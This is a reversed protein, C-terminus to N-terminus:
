KKNAHQVRANQINTLENVREEVSGEKLDIAGYLFVNRELMSSVLHPVVRINERKADIVLEKLRKLDGALYSAFYLWGPKICIFFHVELLIVLFVLKVQEKKM